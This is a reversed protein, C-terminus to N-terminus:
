NTLCMSLKVKEKVGKVPPIIRFVGRATKAVLSSYVRKINAHLINIDM